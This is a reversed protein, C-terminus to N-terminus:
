PCGLSSGVSIITAGGTVIAMTGTKACIALPSTYCNMMLTGTACDSWELCVGGPDPSIDYTQCSAIVTITQAFEQPDEGCNDIMFGVEVFFADEDTPTGGLVVTNGVVNMTMWSPKVIGSISFPATGTLNIVANYPTGGAGDPLDTPVIEAPVCEETVVLTDDFEITGDCNEIGFSVEVDEGAEDPMGTFHIVSGDVVINLWDPKVIDTLVFPATGTLALDYSYAVGVAADPLSGTFGAAVCDCDTAKCGFTQKCESDLNIDVRWLKSDNDIVRIDQTESLKWEVGNVLINGRNYIGILVDKYFKPVIESEFLSERVFVSKYTKKNNFATFTMKNAQEIISGLRVYALHTYHFIGSGLFDENNPYGYYIGNCDFADVGVEENPYCGRVQTLTECIPFEYQQSYWVYDQGGITLTIKFFFRTYTVGVPPTVILDSFVAYWTGDPKTGIVYKGPIATGVNAIDCVNLVEILVLTPSGQIDAYLSIDSFLNVPVYFPRECKQNRTCNFLLDTYPAVGLGVGAYLLKM